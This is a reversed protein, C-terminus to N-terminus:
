PAPPAFGPAAAAADVDVVEFPVYKGNGENITNVLRLIKAVLAPQNRSAATGHITGIAFNLLDLEDESIDIKVRGNERTMPM